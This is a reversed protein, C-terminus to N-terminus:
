IVSHEQVFKDVQTAIKGAMYLRMMARILKSRKEEPVRSDWEKKMSDQLKVNIRASAM